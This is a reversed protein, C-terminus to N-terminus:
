KGISTFYVSYNKEIGKFEKGKINKM